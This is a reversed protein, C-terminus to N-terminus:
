RKLKRQEESRTAGLNVHYLHLWMYLSVSLRESAWTCAGLHAWLGGLGMDMSDTIGDLWRM